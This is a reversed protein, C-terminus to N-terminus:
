MALVQAIEKLAEGGTLRLFVSELSGQDSAAKERLEDMTGLATVEGRQIIAIRNCMAEAIELAHTSMFISVGGACLGRFVEKVLRASKPDLGVMPEDVVIVRPKHLLAAAMVVKQKMGHSYREILEDRWEALEFLSLLEEIRHETVCRELGYLGGVFQLFEAGTLKEYIFPRDPIHGMRAKAKAPERALNIGDIHIEGATPQIVGAMMKVTTTKGAGNPGLFGFVEGPRVDLNLEKVAPFKGYYKSVGVLRIM